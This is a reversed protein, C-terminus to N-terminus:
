PSSKNGTRFWQAGYLLAASGAWACLMYVALLVRQSDAFWLWGTGVAVVLATPIHIAALRDRRTAIAERPQRSTTGAAALHVLAIHLLWLLFGARIFVELEPRGAFGAAMLVAIVVVAVSVAPRNHAATGALFGPLLRQRTLDTAIRAM